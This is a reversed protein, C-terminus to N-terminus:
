SMMWCLFLIFLILAILKWLGTIYLFLIILIIAFTKWFNNNKKMNLRKINMIYFFLRFNYVSFNFFLFESRGPVFM